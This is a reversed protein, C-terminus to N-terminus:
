FCCGCKVHQAKAIHFISLTQQRFLQYSGEDLLATMHSVQDIYGSTVGFKGAFDKQSLLYLAIEHEHGVIEPVKQALDEIFKNTIEQLNVVIADIISEQNVKSMSRVMGIISASNTKYYENLATITTSM